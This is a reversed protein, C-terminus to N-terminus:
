TRQWPRRWVTPERWNKFQPGDAIHGGRWERPRANGESSTPGPSGLKKIGTVGIFEPVPMSSLLRRFKQCGGRAAYPLLLPRSGARRHGRQSRRSTGLGVYIAKVRSPFLDHPRALQHQHQLADHVPQVSGRASSCTEWDPRGAYCAAAMESL